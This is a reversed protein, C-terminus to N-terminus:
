EAGNGDEKIRQDFFFSHLVRKRPGSRGANWRKKLGEAVMNCINGQGTAMRRAQDLINGPTSAQGNKLREVFEAPDVKKKVEPIKFFTHLGHVMIGCTAEEDGPWSQSMIMLIRELIGEKCARIFPSVARLPTGSKTGEFEFRFGYSHVLNSVQIALPDKAIILAKLTELPSAPVRNKNFCAWAMAEEQETLGHTVFCPWDAYGKQKVVTSRHNGDILYIATGGPRVNAFFIGVAFPNFEDIMRKIQSQHIPRQYRPSRKLEAIPVPELSVKEVDRGLLDCLFKQFFQIVSQM